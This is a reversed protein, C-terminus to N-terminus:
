FVFFQYIMNVVGFSAVTGIVPNFNTFLGKEDWGVICKLTANKRAIRKLTADNRSGM